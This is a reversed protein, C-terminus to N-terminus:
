LRCERTRDAARRRRTLCRARRSTCSARWTRTGKPGIGTSRSRPTGSRSRVPSTTRPELADALEARLEYDQPKAAVQAQLQEVKSKAGTSVDATTATQQSNGSGTQGPLRAGLASALSVGALLAFLAVAAVVITRRRSSTEAPVPRADVGDRLARLVIAARATYDDHLERYSEEDIGGSSRELELDDLSRMLHDREAELEERDLPLSSM